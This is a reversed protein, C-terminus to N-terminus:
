RTNVHSLFLGSTHPELAPGRLTCLLAELNWGAGSNCSGTHALQTSANAWGQGDWKMHTVNGWLVLSHWLVSGQSPFARLFGSTLWGENSSLPFWFRLLTHSTGVTVWAMDSGLRSGLVGMEPNQETDWTAWQPQLSAATTLLVLYLTTHEQFFLWAKPPCSTALVM